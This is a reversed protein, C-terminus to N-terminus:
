NNRGNREKREKKKTGKKNKYYYTSGDWEDDYIGDDHYDNDYGYGDNHYDQGSHGNYNNYNDVCYGGNGYYAPMNPKICGTTNVIQGLHNYFIRLGGIKALRHHRYRMYISGARKIRGFGDYNIFVNGIRRVRGLHDHEIRVSYDNYPRSSVSGYFTGPAGYSINVSTACRRSRTRFRPHTNFDFEGNAFVIFEIGREMFKFTAGYNYRSDVIRSKTIPNTNNAATAGLTVMMFLAILLVNRKM